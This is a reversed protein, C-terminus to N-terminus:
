SLRHKLGKQPPQADAKDTKVLFIKGPVHTRVSRGTRLICLAADVIEADNQPDKEASPANKPAVGECLSPAIGRRLVIEFHSPDNLSFFIILKRFAM